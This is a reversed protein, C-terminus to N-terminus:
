RKNKAGFNATQSHCNPCIFRLNEAHNDWREGNLHDIQLPLPQGQWEPPLGCVACEYARGIECLARRLRRPDEVRALRDRAVLIQAATRKDPGGRHVSGHNARVGLFHSTDLGYDRILRRLYAQSGGTQKLDLKRLVGALSVSDRVLPALIDPTYKTKLM